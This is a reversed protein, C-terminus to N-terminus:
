KLYPYESISYIVKKIGIFEIYKMCNICPRSLRFQNLRNIRIILISAGKLDTKAKIIADVEAHISDYQKFKPLLHKVSKQPYNHGLSLIKKKNFIVVGLKHKYTSKLAEKVALDVFGNYKQLLMIRGNQGM